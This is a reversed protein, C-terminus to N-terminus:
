SDRPSPSTYLLCGGVLGGYWVFGSGSFIVAIPDRLLAPVDQAVAWLKSGGIGGVAGWFVMSSAAEGPLGRRDLEKGTLWGAVLFAVAMMTGYSYVTLPGLHVIM